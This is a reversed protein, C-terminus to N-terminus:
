EVFSCIICKHMGREIHRNSHGVDCTSSREFSNGRILLDVCEAFRLLPSERCHGLSLIDQNGRAVETNVHLSVDESNYAFFM